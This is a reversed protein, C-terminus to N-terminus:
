KEGRDSRLALPHGSCRDVIVENFDRHAMRGFM